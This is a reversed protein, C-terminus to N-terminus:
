CVRKGAQSRKEEGMMSGDMMCSKAGAACCTLWRMKMVVGGAFRGCGCM